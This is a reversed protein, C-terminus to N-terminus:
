QPVMGLAALSTHGVPAVVLHDLIPIGMLRGVDAMRKTLEIDAESPDPDGSPHNHAIIMSHAGLRVADRFLERPHVDVQSLSGVSIVMTEIIRQRANLLVAVFHEKEKRGLFTRVFDAADSPSRLPRSWKQCEADCYRVLAFATHLRDAQAPTAGLAVLANPSAESLGQGAPYARLISEATKKSVGGVTRLANLMTQQTGHLRVLSNRRRRAPATM